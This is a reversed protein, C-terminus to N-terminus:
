PAGKTDAGPVGPLAYRTPDSVSGRGTRRVRDAAVLEQVARLVSERKGGVGSVLEKQGYWRPETSLFSVIREKMADLRAAAPNGLAAYKDGQLDVVIEDPTEEYRSRGRIARKTTSRRDDDASGGGFPRVEVIIDVAGPLATSGRSSNGSDGDTKNMHHVLVVSYGQAAAEFLPAIAAQVAGADNEDKAGLHAWVTFTDVVIIQAGVERAKEVAGRVVVALPKPPFAGTRDLVVAHEVGFRRCKQYIASAPEESLYVTTAQHTPVGCYEPDGAEMARLAAFLWTSKGGKQAGLVLTVQGIGFFGRMLWRVSSDSSALMPVTKWPLTRAASPAFMAALGDIRARVETLAQLSPEGDYVLQQARMAERLIERALAKERVVGAYHTANAATAVSEVYTALHAKGGVDALAGTRECEDAVVLPDTPRGTRHVDHFVSWVKANVSRYFDSPAVVEALTPFVDHDLLCCGILAAEAEVDNPPVRLMSSPDQGNSHTM